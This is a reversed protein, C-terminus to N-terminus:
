QEPCGVLGAPLTRSWPVPVGLVAGELLHAARAKTGPVGCPEGLGVTLSGRACLWSSLGLCLRTHGLILNVSLSASISSAGEGQGTLVRVRLLRCLIHACALTALRPGVAAGLPAGRSVLILSAHLGSLLCCAARELARWRVPINEAASRAASSHPCGAAKLRSSGRRGLLKEVRGQGKQAGERWESAGRSM